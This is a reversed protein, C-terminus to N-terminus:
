VDKKANANEEQLLEQLLQLRGEIKIAEQLLQQKEQEIANIQAILDERRRKSEQLEKKIEM